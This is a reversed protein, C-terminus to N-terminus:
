KTDEAVPLIADETLTITLVSDKELEIQKGPLARVVGAGIGAGAAAGIVADKTDGGVKKGLIAGAVAAGIMIGTNRKKSEGGVESIMGVIPYDQKSEDTMNRLTSFAIELEAPVDGKSEPAQVRAVSGLLRWRKIPAKTQNELRIPGSVEARVETGVTATKTSIPTILTATITSGAPVLTMGPPIKPQPPEAPAAPPTPSSKPEAPRGSTSPAAKPPSSPTSPTSESHGPSQPAITEQPNSTAPAPESPTSPTPVGGGCGVILGAITATCIVRLYRM